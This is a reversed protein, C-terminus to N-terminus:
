VTIGRLPARPDGSGPRSDVGFRLALVALMALVVVVLGFMFLGEM